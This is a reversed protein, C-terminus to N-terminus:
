KEVIFRFTQRGYHDMVRVLYLGNAWSSPIPVKLQGTEATTQYLAHGKLDVIQITAAKELGLITLVDRVPNQRIVLEGNARVIISKIKSTTFRGNTDTQRLRYYNIGIAPTTHVFSYTHIQETTGNGNVRGLAEFSNGDLSYEILFYDNDVEQATEWSLLATNNKEKADFRSLTVPLVSCPAPTLTYTQQDTNVPNSSDTVRMKVSVATGSAYTFSPTLQNLIEFTGNGDLDWDFTYPGTGGTATGSFAVTQFPNSGQCSAANTFNGIM